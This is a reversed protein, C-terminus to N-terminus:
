GSGIVTSFLLVDLVLFLFIEGWDFFVLDLFPDRLDSRGAEAEACAGPSSAEAGASLTYAAM